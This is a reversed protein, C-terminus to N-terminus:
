PKVVFLVKQISETGSARLTVEVTYVGAEAAAPLTFEFTTESRGNRRDSTVTNPQKFLPAGEFYIQREETVPQTAAGILGSVEYRTIVAVKGGRRVETPQLEVGLLAVAASAAPAAQAGPPANEPQLEVKPNYACAALITQVAVLSTLVALGRVSSSM